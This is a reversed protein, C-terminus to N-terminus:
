KLLLDEFKKYAGSENVMTGGFEFKAPSPENYLLRISFVDHGWKNPKKFGNVDIYLIAPTGIVGEPVTTAFNFIIMGDPLVYATSNQELAERYVGKIGVTAGLEKQDKYEPVCGDSFIHRRCIKIPKLQKEVAPQLLRCDSAQHGGGGKGYHCNSVGGMDDIALMYAQTIISIAKKFRSKIEVEQYKGIVAPLTMAAIIGIIGLTILVESLTFANHFNKIFNIYFLLKYKNSLLAPKGGGGTQFTRMTM